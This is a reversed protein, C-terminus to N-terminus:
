SYGLRNMTTQVQRRCLERLANIEPSSGSAPPTLHGAFALNHDRVPRVIRVPPRGLHPQLARMTREFDADLDEYRVTVVRPFERAADLWGDAHSAWRALMNTSQHMQYRMMRGCPPTEAFSLPDATKPGETWTWQHLFRWFSSLVSAPHRCMVFIVYRRTISDLAGRFFDVAHHSKVVNSMPRDAAGLLLDRVEPLHYFNIEFPPRDFDIWPAAVYDYCAALSNMLFHTGSREHSVVMAAPRMDPFLSFNGDVRM